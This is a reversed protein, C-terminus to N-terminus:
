PTKRSRTNQTLFNKIEAEFGDFDKLHKKFVTYVTAIDVKEYLHILINRFGVMEGLKAAMKKSIVNQQNLIRFVDRNNEPMPMGEDSIVHKGVDICIEIMEQLIKEVGKQFLLNKEFEEINRIRHKELERKLNRQRLLLREVLKMDVM